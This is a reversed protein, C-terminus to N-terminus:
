FLFHKLPGPAIEYVMQNYLFQESMFNLDV